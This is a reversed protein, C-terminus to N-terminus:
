LFFYTSEIQTEPHCITMEDAGFSDFTGGHEKDRAFKRLGSRASFPRLTSIFTSERAVFRTNVRLSYTLHFRSADAGRRSNKTMCTM